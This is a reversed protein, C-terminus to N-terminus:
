PKTGTPRDPGSVGLWERAADVGRFCKIERPSEELESFVELMRGLGFDIDRSVAVATKGRTRQRGYEGAKRLVDRLGEGPIAALTGATLDWLVLKTGGAAAYRGLQELIQDAAVQGTVTHVTLDHERDFSTTITGM